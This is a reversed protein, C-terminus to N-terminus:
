HRAARVLADINETPTGSLVTGAASLILASSTGARVICERGASEVQEPMGRALIEVASVNGMLAIESGLVARVERIDM